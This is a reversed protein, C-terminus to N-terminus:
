NDMKNLSTTDASSDTTTNGPIQEVDVETKRVTDRITENRESSEKGLSVEEVVRAEKSVVPVEAYEKLEMQGEKFTDFDSANAARNVPNRNVYVREERLRLNEEVPREVIRSRLRAGGTTVTRKGVQLNEEIIPISTAGTNDADKSFTNRNTVDSTTSDMDVDPTTATAGTTDGFVGVPMAGTNTDYNDADSADEDVNVAGADDLIDAAREAEDSSDTYVTVISSGRSAYNSYRSTQSNNENDDEDTGFLNKFFRTVGSEKDDHRDLDFDTRNGTMGSNDTTMENTTDSNSKGISLDIDSDSFGNAKLQQVATQAESATNFLGVVTQTM